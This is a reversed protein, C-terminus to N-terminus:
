ASPLLDPNEYINGIVHINEIRYFWEAGVMDNGQSRWYIAHNGNIDSLRKRHWPFLVIYDGSEFRVQGVITELPGRSQEGYEGHLVDGEFIEKGNKDTLSTSQMIPCGRKIFYEMVGGRGSAECRLYGFEAGEDTALMERDDPDWARFKLPTM